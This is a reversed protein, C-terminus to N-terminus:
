GDTLVEVPLKKVYYIITPLFVVSFIVIYIVYVILYRSFTLTDMFLSGQGKLLLLVGYKFIIVSLLFAFSTLLFSEWYFSAIASLKTCGLIRNIAIEKKRTDLIYTYLYVLNFIGLSMIGIILILESLYDKWLSIRTAETPIEVMTGNFLNGLYTSFNEIEETTKYDDVVITIASFSWISPISNYPIQYVLESLIGLGIVDYSIGNIYYSDGIEYKDYSDFNQNKSLYPYNPLVVKNNGEIIDEESFWKGFSVNNVFSNKNYYDARIVAGDNNFLVSVLIVELKESILTDMKQERNLNDVSVIYTREKEFDNSNAIVINNVFNVIFFIGCLSSILLLMFIVFITKNNSMFSRINKLVRM